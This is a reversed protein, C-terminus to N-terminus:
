KSEITIRFRGTLPNIGAVMEMGNIVLEVENPNSTAFKTTEVKSPKVNPTVKKTAISFKEGEKWLYAVRQGGNEKAPVPFSALCGRKFLYSLCDRAQQKNTATNQLDPSAWLTNFTIPTNEASARRMIEEVKAYTKAVQPLTAMPEM